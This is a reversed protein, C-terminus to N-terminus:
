DKFIKGPNLINNPDFSKKIQRMLTIEENSLALNLFDKRLFGIGHEGSITGHYKLAIQYIVAKIKPIMEKWVQYNMDGKLIDTHVNGDGAHGFLISHLNLKGLEEKVEKVYNPIYSRPVVTDEAFFIPSESVIANRIGRRAAWMLEHEVETKAAVIQEEPINLSKVLKNYQSAIEEKSNGDLQILLHAGADPYLIKTDSHKAVLRIANAEMFEITSPMIKSTTVEFVADIAQDITNFPILLNLTESPSPLLKLYIKTIVALTGESGTLIGTMNYGTANKVFKGGTHMIKGSATVFELGLIYDKTTGYKVARPGGASEAVNGGISCTELSAPDPPYMLGKELVAKQLNGTIVGPEVVAVMNDPDIEIINDMKELSLVIGGNIAVAGGTVGTGAGRPIVPIKYKNALKLVACVQFTNDTIVVLDPMSELDPTEDKSYKDLIENNTLIASAPIKTGLENQFDNINNKM